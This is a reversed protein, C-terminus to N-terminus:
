LCQTNQESQIM